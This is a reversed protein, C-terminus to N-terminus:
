SQLHLMFLCFSVTLKLVNFKQKTQAEVSWWITTDDVRSLVLLVILERELGGHRTGLSKANPVSSIGLFDALDIHLYDVVLLIGQDM